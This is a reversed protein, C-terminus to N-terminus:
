TTKFSEFLSPVKTAPDVEEPVPPASSYKLLPDESGPNTINLTPAGMLADKSVDLVEPKISEKAALKAEENITDYENGFIGM